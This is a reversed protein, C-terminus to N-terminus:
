KGAKKYIPSIDRLDQIIKPLVELVYDVEEDTSFRSFSFRISGHAIEHPLGLALLVHSPELEGTSCASGTSAAIGKMDLKLLISEGEVYKFSINLTTPLRKERHGNIKIDNIKSIIGEELKDRLERERAADEVMRRKAVELAKGLGVIGLFNETGARRNMEHHGGHILPCFCKGKKIYLVGIGKPGHIKHGSLSLFDVGLENVDVKIKGIAQTADTHFFIGKAKAIKGIEKIPQLTGIENNALIISILGTEKTISKKIDDPDIIGEKDCPVYTIKYGEREICKCTSLVSPHEIESTIIHSGKAMHRCKAGECIVGKLVTNNAESAGSTFIIEEAERADLFEKVTNRAKDIRAKSELGFSHFSSANGFINISDIIEKKVEPDLPTTANNDLYVKKM